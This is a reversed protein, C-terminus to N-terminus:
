LFPSLRWIQDFATAILIARCVKPVPITRHGRQRLMMGNLHKPDANLTTASITEYRLAKIPGGFQPKRLPSKSARFAVFTPNQVPKRPLEARKQAFRPDARRSSSPARSARVRMCTGAPLPLTRGLKTPIYFPGSVGSKISGSYRNLAAGCLITGYGCERM